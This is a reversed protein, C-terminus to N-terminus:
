FLLATCHQQWGIHELRYICWIKQQQKARGGETSYQHHKAEGPIRSRPIIIIIIIIIIASQISQDDLLIYINDKVVSVESRSNFGSEIQGLRELVSCFIDGVRGGRMVLLTLWDYEIGAYVSDNAHAHAHAHAHASHSLLLLLKIYTSIQKKQQQWTPPLVIIGYLLISDPSTKDFPKVRPAAAAASRNSWMCRWWFINSVISINHDSLSIQNM